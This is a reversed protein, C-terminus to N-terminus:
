VRFRRRGWGPPPDHVDELGLAPAAAAPRGPLGLAASGGGHCGHPRALFPAPVLGQVFSVHPADVSGREIQQGLDAQSAGDLAADFQHGRGAALERGLAPQEKGAGQHFVADGKGPPM